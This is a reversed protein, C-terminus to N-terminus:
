GVILQKAADNPSADGEIQKDGEGKMKAEMRRRVEAWHRKLGDGDFWIRKPPRDEEELEDFKLFRLALLIADALNYPCDGLSMGEPLLVSVDGLDRAIRM